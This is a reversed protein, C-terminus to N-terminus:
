AALAATSVARPARLKRFILVHMLLYAPVLFTPVLVWPLTLLTNASPGVALLNLPTGPVSMVGLTVAVILDLMGFANWLAIWIPRASGSAAMAALPLALAGTIVDGWGASPAFPAPLRGVSYLILFFAGVVRGINAAILVPLPIRQVRERFQPVRFYAILGAALVAVFAIGVTPVPGTVGAAFWGLASTAVLVGLWIGVGTFAAIRARPSLSTAGALLGALIAVLGVTAITGILDLM